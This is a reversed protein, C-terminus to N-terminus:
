RHLAVDPQESAAADDRETVRESAPEDHGEGLVPVAIFRREGVLFRARADRRRSSGVVEAKM